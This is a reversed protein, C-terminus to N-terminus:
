IELDLCLNAGTLIMLIKNGKKKSIKKSFNVLRTCKKCKIINHNLKIFETNM